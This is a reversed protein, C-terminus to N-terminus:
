LTTNNNKNQQRVISCVYNGLKVLDGAKAAAATSLTKMLKM